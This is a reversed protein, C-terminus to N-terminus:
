FYLAKSTMQHDRFVQLLITYTCNLIVEESIHTTRTHNLRSKGDNLKEVSVHVPQIDKPQITVWKAHIACLNTDLVLHVIYIKAAEQLVVCEM